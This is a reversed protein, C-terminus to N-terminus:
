VYYVTGGCLKHLELIEGVICGINFTEQRRVYLINGLCSFYLCDLYFCEGLMSIYCNFDM